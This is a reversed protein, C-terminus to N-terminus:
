KLEVELSPTADDLKARFGNEAPRFAMTKLVPRAAGEKPAPGLVKVNYEVGPQLKGKPDITWAKVILPNLTRPLPTLGATLPAPTNRVSPDAVDAALKPDNTRVDVLSDAPAGKVGVVVYQQCIIPDDKVTAAQAAVKIQAPAIDCNLLTLKGSLFNIGTGKANLDKIQLNAVQLSANEHQFATMAGEVLNDELVGSAGELRIGVECGRIINKKIMTSPIGYGGTIGAACGEVTNGEVASDSQYNVTIGFVFAGRITNHKIEALPGFYVAIAGETLPTKDAYYFTNKAIMPTDCSHLWLRARGTFANGIINLRENAKAGTNDLKQAQLKIEHLSARQWDISVGGDAEILSLVDEKQDAVKPSRVAVNRRDDPLNAKGYLLLAAGKKLKVKRKEANDGIMRLELHDGGSKTGDLKIAGFSEISDAVCCVLKGVGTKFTLMGKPDIQVKQCSVKGDDNRDFTVVDLKQIVVDDFPGPVKKGRWTAPDSWVGGGLGNSSIEAASCVSCILPFLIVTTPVLQWSTGLVWTRWGFQRPCAPLEDRRSPNM